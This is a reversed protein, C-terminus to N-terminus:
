QAEGQKRNITKFGTNVLQELDGHFTVELSIPVTVNNYTSSGALKLTLALSGDDDPQLSIKLVNYSLDALAKSLNDCAEQPLGGAALNDVVPKPDYVRLSGTEGPVSHLYASGLRLKRGKRMYIPMKGYLRGSAEGRFGNLHNLAMGADIGDVFLTVGANLREPDLFLSYTKLDGGCFKAGAETVLFARETARVSAFVNSLTLGAATVSRIRPFMPKIDYHDAIGSAGAQLRFGDVAIQRDGAICSMDLEKVACGASWRPVPVKETKEAHANLSLKGNFVINSVASLKLRSLLQGTVPDTEDIGTEDMVADVKWEGSSSASFGASIRWPTGDLRFSADGAADIGLFRFSPQVTIRATFPWDLLWGTANMAYGGEECREFGFDVTVARNSVLGGTTEDLCSSIDFTLTPYDISVAITPLLAALVALTM